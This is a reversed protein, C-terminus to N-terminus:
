NTEGPEGEPLLEEIFAEAEALKAKAEALEERLKEVEPLADFHARAHDKRSSMLELNELRNDQTDGNKHHVTEIRTLYRGISKEIVLRHEMVYGNRDALPHDPSYIAVYRGREGSKRRGGRWNSADEGFRGGPFRLGLGVRSKRLPFGLWRIASHVAGPTAGIEVAIQRTSRGKVHYEEKLWEKDRLKPHASLRGKPKIGHYRLAKVFTKYTVGLAHAVKQGSDFTNLYRETIEELSIETYLKATM